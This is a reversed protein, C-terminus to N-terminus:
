HTQDAMITMNQIGENQCLNLETVTSMDSIKVGLVLVLILGTCPTCFYKKNFDILGEAKTNLYNGM